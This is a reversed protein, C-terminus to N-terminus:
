VFSFFFFYFFYFGSVTKEWLAGDAHGARLSYDDATFCVKRGGVTALGQVNNSPVFSEPEEQVVEKTKEDSNTDSKPKPRWTVTGSVSGIEKVSGQDFMQEVRERVWLKGSQKQRAYGARSPDPTSAMNQLTSIQSLIDSYDAPLDAATPKKRRRRSSNAKLPIDGDGNEESTSSSAGIHSSIQDVRNKARTAPSTSGENEDDAM